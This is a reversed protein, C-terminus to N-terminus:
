VECMNEFPLLDPRYGLRRIKQDLGTDWSCIAVEFGNKVLESSLDPSFKNRGGFFNPSCAVLAVKM